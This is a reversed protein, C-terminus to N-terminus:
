QGNQIYNITYDVNFSNLNKQFLISNPDIEQYVIKRKVNGDSPLYLSMFKNFSVAKICPKKIENSFNIDLCDLENFSITQVKKKTNTAVPIIPKFNSVMIQQEPVTTARIFLIPTFVFLFMAAAVVLPMPIKVTTSFWNPKEETQTFDIRKTFEAKQKRAQLKLFSDELNLQPTSSNQMLVQIRQYKKLLKKCDTCNEFHSELKEKWPSPLEGDVYASYLDKDPCTSM